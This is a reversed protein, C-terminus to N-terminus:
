SEKDTPQMYVQSKIDGTFTFHLLLVFINTDDAVIITETPASMVLHHIIITDGEEQTTRANECRSVHGNFIQLLVPDKRTATM